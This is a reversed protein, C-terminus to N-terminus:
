EKVFKTSVNGGSVFYNGPSLTSIDLTTETTKIVAPVQLEKGLLNFLRVSSTNKVHLFSTAPNPYIDLALTSSTAALAAPASGTTFDDFCFYLPTNIGFQGVDSSIFSFTVSDVQGLSTLDVWRWDKVIYDNANNSDRFDALYTTVTDPLALGNRWGTFRVAFFDPDNGSTGGFKKAVFDGNKLSMYSVTSNTLYVGYAYSSLANNAVKIKNNDTNYDYYAVGYITSNNNGKGTIAAYQNSYGATITDVVNSYACAGWYGGFSTDYSNVFQLNGDTFSTVQSTNGSGNWYTNPGSLPLAELTAVQQAHSTTYSAVLALLTFIRHKM